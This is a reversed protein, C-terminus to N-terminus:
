VGRKGLIERMGDWDLEKLRLRLEKMRKEDEDPLRYAHVSSLVMEASDYDMVEALESLAAYADELEAPDIEEKSSVDDDSLPSLRDLYDRYLLLLRGTESRIFELNDNKGADELDRALASLEAAGILRASSKLAHVKITYLPFDEAVYANEIEDAKEPLTEYFTNLAMMFSEPSGCNKAGETPDIGETEYLWEPVSGTEEKEEEGPGEETVTEPDLLLKEPLYTKITEELKRADVPKGLYGQFGEGVYYSEGSEASNATLAIVPLDTDTERIHHVTEIGDMEPMMHDLFVMDVKEESLIKLCEKGSMATILQVKTPRLLGGIVQLNMENDDVVMIRADPAVFLPVYVGTEADDPLSKESFEGIPEAKVIKQKLTFYFTSGEGYVSECKLEDGMLEVFQRSIDLGLGTGQIGSNRKEDLREFASFLKDMDEKRIGIGTDSVSYHITATDGELQKMEVKLTFHGKETYKVANTLLNLLVQKIKGDDGYLSSPLKPDIEMVFGLDKENSRVRIMTAIARLLDTTDYEKEVLNMKGSEIKSLDLIDNVISLLSESAHKISVAYEGVKAAYRQKPENKDERLIMEDMGMITNIPTRIEHSMNALFRSKASNARDAEEKAERIEVYQRRIITSRLIWWVIFGVGAALLAILLIRVGILETIKAEKYLPFTEDRLVEYDTPNLIQVHLTYSGYPLNTYILPSLEDQYVTTGDDSAGELYLHVLPNSLDFNLVAAQIEIRNAASSIRFVGEADKEAQQDDYKVTNLLINYNNSVTNVRKTSILRVGDTCCLLLDGDDNLLTNWANATLSTTFGRSYDLLEYHYDGDAILDQLNVIFIGASSSIWAEDNDTIYVDYNNTYPFASLRRIETGDDYYLANSTVYIYGDAAPVIRLVVLTELGEEEGIHGVVAGNKLLYIGDGDSGAMVTGDEREVMALIQPADMGDNEGITYIVKDGSIATIGMNSAALITGDSCELVYRFRGGLTGSKSENFIKEKGDADVRILGDKGYTSFWVSHRSDEMIHRIRVGEFYKLYDYDENEFTTGDIIFLGNDAGVYIDGNMVMLSNVVAPSLSAREFVNEFSNKSYELIGQKNSVFWFNGQADKIVDSISSDFNDENLILQHGTESFFGYGNEACFFCDETEEDLMLKNFYTIGEITHVGGKKIQGDEYSVKEVREGSTGVYFHGNGAYGVTTYYLGTETYQASSLNGEEDLFFLDGANSVGAVLDNASCLSRVGSLVQDEFVHVNGQSDIKSLEGVNGVYINGQSDETLSRISMSSLGNEPTYVSVEDTEPTYCFLGTDNTGIWLRGRSDVFLVMVNCIRDDLSAKAFRVGDYRYLGSYTGAWLYGEPTQAVANIQASVLGDYSDYIIAEYEALFDQIRSSGYVETKPLLLAACILLAALMIKKM